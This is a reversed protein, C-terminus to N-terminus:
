KRNMIKKNKPTSNDIGVYVKEVQEMFIIYVCLDKDIINKRIKKYILQLKNTSSFMEAYNIM